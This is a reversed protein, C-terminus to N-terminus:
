GDLIEKLIKTKEFFEIKYDKRNKDLIIFTTYKKLRNNKIDVEGTLVFIKKKFEIAKKIIEGNIKGKLSQEDFKGEDLIVVDSNKIIKEIPIMKSLFDWCSMNKGGVFYTFFGLGGGSGLFKEGLVGYKKAVHNFISRYFKIKEENLGKQKLYLSAGNKGDLPSYVDCISILNKLKICGDNKKLDVLVESEPFKLVNYGLIEFSGSGLDFTTTGGIGLFIKKYDKYVKKLIYGIGKSSRREPDKSIDKVRTFGVIKASEIFLNKQYEVTEVTIKKHEPSFTEFFKLKSSPYVYRIFNLFGDGGDSIPVILDDKSQFIEKYLKVVDDNSLTGKLSNAFFVKKM